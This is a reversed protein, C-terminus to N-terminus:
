YTRGRGLIDTGEACTSLPRAAKKGVFIEDATPIDGQFSIASQSCPTPDTGNLRNELFFIAGQAV